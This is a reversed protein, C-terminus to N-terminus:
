KVLSCKKHCKGNGCFGFMEAWEKPSIGTKLFERAGQCLDPFIDQIAGAGNRYQFLQEETVPLDLIKTKNTNMSIRSVKM